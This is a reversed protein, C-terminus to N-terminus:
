AGKEEPFFMVWKFGFVKAIRKAASVSPKRKGSEISSYMAQSIGARLAAEKQTLGKKKRSAKLDITKRM